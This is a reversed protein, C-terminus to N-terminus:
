REVPALLKGSQADYKPPPEAARRATEESVAAEKGAGFASLVNGNATTLTGQTAIVIGIVTLASGLAIGAITWRTFKNDAKIGGVDSKLDNIQTTLATTLNSM